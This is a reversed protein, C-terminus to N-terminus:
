ISRLNIKNKKLDLKIKPDIAIIKNSIQKNFRDTEIGLISLYSIFIFISFILILFIKSIIKM